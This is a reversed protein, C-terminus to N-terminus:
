SVSIHIMIRWFNRMFKIINVGCYGIARFNSQRALVTTRFIGCQTFASLVFPDITNRSYSEIIRHLIHSYHKKLRSM